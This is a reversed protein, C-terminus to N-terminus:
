LCIFQEIFFNMFPAPLLLEVIISYGQQIQTIDSTSRTILSASGFQNFENITFGQVKRFLAGRVDTAFSMSIWASFYTVLVSAAATAVAAGLMNMHCCIITKLKNQPHSHIYNDLAGSLCYALYILETQNLYHGTHKLSVDEILEALIMEIRMPRARPRTSFYVLFNVRGTAISLMFSTYSVSYFFDHIMESDLTGIRPVTYTADYAFYPRGSLDIACLILAEDMPLIASGYRKIAKKEGVAEKIAEGLVIGCDEVTHHSDVELDGDCHLKLDFLGHILNALEEDNIAADKNIEGLTKEESAVVSDKGALTWLRAKAELSINDMTTNTGIFQIYTVEIGASDAQAFIEEMM